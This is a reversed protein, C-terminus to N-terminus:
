LLTWIADSYIELPAYEWSVRLQRYTAELAEQQDPTTGFAKWYSYRAEDSVVRYEESMGKSLFLHFGSKLLDDNRGSFHVGDCNNLLSAYFDQMVPIGGCVKLGGEAVSKVWGKAQRITTWHTLSATDKATAISPNRVMRYESGDFVPHMQCFEIAELEYVPEEAICQFGFRLWGDTLGGLLKTANTAETILVCDDGNNILRAKIGMEHVLKKSILCALLCNGLATNMDGSMRCGKKRYKVKGDHAYGVGSNNIQWSLLRQLESSHFVSNYCSHEFQLAPVSVHQDFRKMDFGIAVPEGFSDWAEKIHKAVQKVNYGKMVTPGGWITDLARYAEHEFPKLYKGVEVNYRPDRPQIVRPAPDKKASFNIKEAKVFTKLKADQPDVARESLSDAAKQYIERKRGTYLEVFEQRSVPSHDACIRSFRQKLGRLSRFAGLVPQPCGQLGGKSEVYFVREILGRRLNALSHNHVGFNVRPGFGSLKYIRRQKPFPARRLAEVDPHDGRWM